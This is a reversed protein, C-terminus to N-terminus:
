VVCPQATLPVPMPSAPRSQKCICPKIAPKGFAATVGKVAWGIEATSAERGRLCNGYPMLTDELRRRGPLTAAVSAASDAAAADHSAQVSVPSGEQAIAAEGQLITDHDADVLLLEPRGGGHVHSLLATMPKALNGGNAEPPRPVGLLFPVPADLFSLLQHPLVPLLPCQWRLPRILLSFTHVVATLLELDTGVVVVQKELLMASLMRLMTKNSLARMTAPVYRAAMSHATMTTLWETNSMATLTEAVASPTRVLVEDPTPYRGRVSVVGYDFVFEVISSTADDDDDQAARRNM